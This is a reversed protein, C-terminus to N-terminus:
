KFRWIYWLHINIFMLQIKNKTGVHTAIVRGNSQCEYSGGHGNIKKELYEEQLTRKRKRETKNPNFKLQLM